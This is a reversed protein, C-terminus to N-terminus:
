LTSAAGPRELLAYCCDAGALRDILAIPPFALLGLGYSLWLKWGPTWHGAIVYHISYAASILTSSTGIEGVELELLGATVRLARPSFHQLHRPLDLHFWRGRFLSRQWSAWNPLAIAIRGGPALLARATRLADLPDPIHELSHSFAILDFSEAPWPHDALTGHHVHLGRRAAAAVASAAPDVGFVEWGLARHHALLDGRGCGVDLLRGPAAAGTAFPPRSVRRASAMRRFVARARELLGLPVGDGHEYFDGFYVGGYYRELEAGRLQPETLGFECAPCELVTFPGDGTVLRDYARVGSARLEGGCLPCVGPAAIAVM